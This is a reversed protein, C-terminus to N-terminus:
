CRRGDSKFGAIFLLEVGSSLSSKSVIDGTFSPFLIWLAVTEINVVAYIGDGSFGCNLYHGTNQDFNYATLPM